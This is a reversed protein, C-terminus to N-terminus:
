PRAERLHAAKDGLLLTSKYDESEFRWPGFWGCICKMRAKDNLSNGTQEVGCLHIIPQYVPLGTDNSM